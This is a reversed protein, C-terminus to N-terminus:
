ATQDAFVQSILMFNVRFPGIAHRVFMLYAHKVVFKSWTEVACTLLTVLHFHFLILAIHGTELVSTTLNTVPQCTEYKACKLV